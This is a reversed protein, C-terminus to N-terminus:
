TICHPATVAFATFAPQVNPSPISPTHSQFHASAYQLKTASSTSDFNKGLRKAFGVSGRRLASGAVSLIPTYWTDLGYTMKHHLGFAPRTLRNCALLVKLGKTAASEAQRKFNLKDDILIGNWDYPIKEDSQGQAQMRLVGFKSEEFGSNHTSSWSRSSDSMPDLVIDCEPYSPAAALMRVDDYYAEAASSKPNTAVEILPANYFPYLTGSSPAGQGIGNEIVYATSLFDDLRNALWTTGKRFEDKIRATLLHIADTTTRGPRGGMHTNPILQHKEIVYALMKSHM